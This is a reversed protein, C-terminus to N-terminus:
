RASVVQPLWALLVRFGVGCRWFDRPGGDTRGRWVVQKRRQAYPRADSIQELYRRQADWGVVHRGKGDADLWLQADAQNTVGYSM